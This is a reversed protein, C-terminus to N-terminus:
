LYCNAIVYYFGGIGIQCTQTHKHFVRCVSFIKVRTREDTICILLYQKWALQCCNGVQWWIQLKAAHCTSKWEPLNFRLKSLRTLPIRVGWQRKLACLFKVFILIKRVNGWRVQLGSWNLKHEASWKQLFFDSFSVWNMARYEIHKTQWEIKLLWQFWKVIYYIYLISM